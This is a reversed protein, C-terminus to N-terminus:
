SLDAWADRDRSVAASLMAFSALQNTYTKTAGVAQETGTELPFCLSSSRALPSEVDNTLAISLAGQRRAHEVTAAVDPSQGSQSVGFVLAKDMRLETKYRTVLSPSALATVLGHRVGFLYNAYRAANDSSGRGAVVVFRPDFTRIEEAIAEAHARGRDLLRALADPQERLEREFQSQPRESGAM